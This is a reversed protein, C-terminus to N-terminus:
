SSIIKRDSPKREVLKAAPPFDKDLQAGLNILKKAKALRSSCPGGSVKKSKEELRKTTKQNHCRGHTYIYMYINTRLKGSRRM